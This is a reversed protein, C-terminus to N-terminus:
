IAEDAKCGSLDDTTDVMESELQNAFCHFFKDMGKKIKDISTRVEEEHATRQSEMKDELHILSTKLDALLGSVRELDCGLREIRTLIQSQMESSQSNNEMNEPRLVLNLTCPQPSGGAASSGMSLSSVGPHTLPPTNYNNQEQFSSSHLPNQLPLPAPNMTQNWSDVFAQRDAFSWHPSGSFGQDM